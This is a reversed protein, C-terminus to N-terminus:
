GHFNGESFETDCGIAPRRVGFSVSPRGSKEKELRYADRKALLRELCGISNKDTMSLRAPKDKGNIVVDTCIRLFPASRDRRPRPLEDFIGQSADPDTAGDSLALGDAPL